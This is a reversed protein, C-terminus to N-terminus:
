PIFYMVTEATGETYHRLYIKYNPYYSLIQNPIDIMDAGKHYVSIAIRPHLERIINQAGTLAASEAGEIDMKLYTLKKIGLNDICDAQVEIGEDCVQSTNGTSAFHLKCKKDFAAVAYYDIKGLGEMNKTAIEINQEEPEFFLIRDYHPFREAFAMSTLGDFGGVDGFVEGEKKLNLFPEFYQIDQRDCFSMMYKLDHHLRFKLVHDFVYRSEEDQLLSYIHQYEDYRNNYSDLFTEWYSIEFPCDSYKIFSFFDISSLGYSEIKKHISIPHGGTVTSLVISNAPLDKINHVVPIGNYKEMSHLQDVLAKIVVGNKKLFEITMDTYPNIGFVYKPTDSQSMFQKVLNKM